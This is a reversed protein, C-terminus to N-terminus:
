FMQVNNTGTAGTDFIAESTRQQKINRNASFDTRPGLTAVEVPTTTHCVSCHRDGYEDENIEQDWM